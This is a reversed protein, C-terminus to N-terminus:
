FHTEIGFVVGAPTSVMGLSYSIIELRCHEPLKDLTWGGGGGEIAPGGRYGSGGM